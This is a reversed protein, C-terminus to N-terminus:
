RDLPAESRPAPAALLAVVPVRLAQALRLVLAPSPRRRGAEVNSLHPQSVGAARALQSLSM